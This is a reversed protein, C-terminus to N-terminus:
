SDGSVFYAGNDTCSLYTVRDCGDLQKLFTGEFTHYSYFKIAFTTAVIM